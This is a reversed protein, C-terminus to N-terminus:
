DPNSPLPHRASLTHPRLSDCPHETGRRLEFVLPFPIPPCTTCLERAKAATPRQITIVPLSAGSQVVLWVSAAAVRAGKRVVIRFTYNTGPFPSGALSGDLMLAAAKPLAILSGSANLCPSTPADAVGPAASAVCTWEFQMLPDPSATEPPADPDFSRSADLTLRSGSSVTTDGGSVAIALPSSM